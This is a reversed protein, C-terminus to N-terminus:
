RVRAPTHCFYERAHDGQKILKTNIGSPCSNLTVISKKAYRFFKMVRKVALFLYTEPSSKETNRSILLFFISFRM